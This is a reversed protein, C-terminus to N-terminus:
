PAPCVGGSVLYSDLSLNKAAAMSQAQSLQAASLGDKCQAFTAELAGHGAHGAHAAADAAHAGHGASAAAAATAPDVPIPTLAHIGVANLTNAVMNFGNTLVLGPDAVIPAFIHSLYNGLAAFVTGGSPLALLAASIMGIWMAWHNLKGVSSLVGEAM